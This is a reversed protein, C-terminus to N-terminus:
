FFLVQMFHIIKMNESVANSMTDTLKLINYQYLCVIM